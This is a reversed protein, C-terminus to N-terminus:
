PVIAFFAKAAAHSALGKYKQHLLSVKGEHGMIRSTKEVSKGHLVHYTAFSHRCGDQVWHDLGVADRLVARSMFRTQRDCIPEDPAGRLPKLWLWLNTPLGEILRATRTKAIEAPIRVSRAKFDVHGWLLSAKERAHIESPRVGAFLMLAAAAQYAGAHRMILGAEVPTFFEVVRADKIVSLQLGESPDVICLPPDARRAWRFLARIARLYGEATAASPGQAEIWARLDPRNFDDLAAGPHAACFLSLKSEYFDVSRRRLNRRMCDRLFANFAVELLTRESASARGVALAAAAVLSLGSGELLQLARRADAREDPSLSFNKRM